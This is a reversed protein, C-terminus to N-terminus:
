HTSGELREVRSQLAALADELARQNQEVTRVRRDLEAHSFKIMAQTEAFGTRMEQRIDSAERELKEDVLAVAEVVLRIEQRTGETVIDFHRRTEAHSQANEQRNAALEQRMADFLHKLEDDTM